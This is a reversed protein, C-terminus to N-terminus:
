IVHKTFISRMKLLIRYTKVKAYTETIGLIEGVERFARNELFRLEIVQFEDPKLQELIAPLKRKLEELADDGLMEEYLLEVSADELVVLRERKSRRFFDNCENLAIRYLWASFPLGRFAFKGINLLAKLFVQSAVDASLDKDGIRHLIFLFIPKYYREYLPKFQQPDTQAHKILEEELLLQDTQKLEQKL